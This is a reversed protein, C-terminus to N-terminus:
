TTAVPWFSPAASPVTAVRLQTIADDIQLDLEIIFRAGLQQQQIRAVPWQLDCLPAKNKSFVVM